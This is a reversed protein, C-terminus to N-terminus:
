LYSKAVTNPNVQLAASLERVSPLQDGPSLVGDRIMQEFQSVIQLYVPQGLSKDINM